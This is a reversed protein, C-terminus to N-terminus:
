RVEKTSKAESFGVLAAGMVILLTGAWRWATITEGLFARGLIANLVYGVSTVPLIYTLDAWRLFLMRSVMWLILLLVGSAVLPNFLVGIFDLGSPTGAGKMGRSMLFNGFVNSLVVVAILVIHVARGVPRQRSRSDDAVAPAGNACTNM